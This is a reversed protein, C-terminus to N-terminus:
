SLRARRTSSRRAVRKRFPMEHGQRKKIDLRQVTKLKADQQKQNRCTQRKNKANHIKNIEGM